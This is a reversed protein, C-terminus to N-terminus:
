KDLYSRVLVEVLEDRDLKRILARANKHSTIYAPDGSLIYGVIQSIPDYGKEVLAGYVTNLIEQPANEKTNDARFFMTRDLDM